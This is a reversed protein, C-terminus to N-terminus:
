TLDAQAAEFRRLNEATYAQYDFDVTLHLESVMSWMAERLLSACKMAAYSRRLDGTVPGGYYAELLWDEQEASLENNSALGGLDFLPSNFGGYEWDLLWLRTGDDILNAALLDNHGFVPEIPGVTRELEEAAGLLRPLDPVMRSGDDRLRAAYNRIVQFVWFFPAPGRFHKPIETHCRRVLPLIRELMAPDRVGEPRLTRGEVFSFVIAGPEAHVVAPSIGAAEAARSAALEFRRLVNHVEIDEGIRVMFKQGADDVLFNHNSIGGSLPVPEVRGKWCALTAAKREARASM